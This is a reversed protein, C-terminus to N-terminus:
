SDEQIDKLASVLANVCAEIDSDSSMNNGIEILVSNNSLDQNFYSPQNNYISMSSKVERSNKINKFLCDVFKKNAEYHPNSKALTFVIEKTDAKTNDTIDRHIDLLITNSYEKVTKTIVNRTTQYSKEYETPATCQIVSSKLGKKILKDNILASVDTVKIGSPYEEAPHSNYIVIESSFQVIPKTNDSSLDKTITPAIENSNNNITSKSSAVQLKDKDLNVKSTNIAIGLVGIIFIAVTGLLIDKINIKKYKSIMIIRRKLESSNMVMSTTGILRNTDGGLELVRIITNGYQINEGEDLYSIVKGDCSFECDQRMKHFGYLLIPNFWYIISLLTIVWNILIDKNKLHTLEHMIIHKFEEDCISVAVNVPILIKPKIFGYLSPSSIKQSYSLEIETRINMNKMCNYLIEKHTSNVNKISTRVIKRLKKHGIVLIVALLVIGFMWIVCFVKETHFKDKLPINMTNSVISKNSPEFASISVSGELDTNELQKSFNIPTKENTPSQIYFNEYINPINLPTQPGFPIILKILLILWIYYNFTSNLKNRFIKKIILIMLVIFSGILSSLVTMEFINLLDM